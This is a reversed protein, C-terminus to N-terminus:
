ENQWCWRACNDDGVQGPDEYTPRPHVVVAQRAVTAAHDSSPPQEFSTKGSAPKAWPHREKEDQENQQDTQVRDGVLENM